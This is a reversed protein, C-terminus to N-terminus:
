QFFRTGKRGLAIGKMLNNQKVLWANEPSEQILYEILSNRRAGFVQADCKIIEPIDTSLVVTPLNGNEFDPLDREPSELIMRNIVRENKFGFKQYVPQGAPTADLKITQFAKLQNLLESLLLKSYGKGRFAKDILVMGIWAVKNEYNMATATGVIKGEEELALCVNGPNEVLIRWDKETQNWGEARSLEWALPIDQITLTKLDAM